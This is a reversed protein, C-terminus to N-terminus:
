AMIGGLISVKQNDLVEIVDWLEDYRSVGSKAIIVVADIDKLASM